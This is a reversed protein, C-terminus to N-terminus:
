VRKRPVYVANKEGPFINTRLRMDNPTTQKLDFLLYGYPVNTCDNYSEMIYKTNLPNIQRAFSYIQSKERPSSFLVIYHANLSIDRFGKNGSFINQTCLMVSLNRHHSGRLYLDVTDSNIQNILDDIIILKPKSDIDSILDIDPLGEQLRIPVDVLKYLESHAKQSVGYCFIIETFQVDVMQKLNSLFKNVFTSKGCGTPGALLCTYPHNWQLTM